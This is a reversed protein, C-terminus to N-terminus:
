GALSLLSVPAITTGVKWVGSSLEGSGGSRSESSIGLAGDVWRVSAADIDRVGRSPERSGGSAKTPESERGADGRGGDFNEDGCCLAAAGKESSSSTGGDTTSSAIWAAVSGSFPLPEESLKIM